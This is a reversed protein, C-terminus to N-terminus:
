KSQSCPLQWLSLRGSGCCFQLDLEAAQAVRNAKERKRTYRSKAYRGSTRLNNGPRSHVDFYDSATRSWDRRHRPSVNAGGELSIQNEQWGPDLKNATSIGCHRAM